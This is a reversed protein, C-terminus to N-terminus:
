LCSRRQVEREGESSRLLIACPRIVVTAVVGIRLCQLAVALALVRCVQEAALRAKLEDVHADHVGQPASELRADDDIMEHASRFKLAGAGAVDEDESEADDGFSLM